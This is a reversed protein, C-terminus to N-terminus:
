CRRPRGTVGNEAGAGHLCEARGRHARLRRMVSFGTTFAAASVSPIVEGQAAASRPAPPRGCGTLGGSALGATALAAMLAAALRGARPASM